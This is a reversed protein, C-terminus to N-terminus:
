GCNNFLYCEMQPTSAVWAPANLKGQKLAQLKQYNAKWQQKEAETAKRRVPASAQVQPALGTKRRYAERLKKNLFSAEQIVSKAESATTTNQSLFRWIYYDKEVSKPMNHIQWYEFAKADLSTAGLTLVTAIAAYIARIKM